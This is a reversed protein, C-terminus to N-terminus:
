ESDDYQEDALVNKGGTGDRIQKLHHTLLYPMIYLVVIEDPKMGHFGQASPGYLNTYAQIPWNSYLLRVMCHTGCTNVHQFKSQLKARNVTLNQSGVGQLLFTLWPKGNMMPKNARLFSSYQIEGDPVIGYPDFFEYRGSGHNLLLTWHGVSASQTPYFLVVARLNGGFLEGMSKYKDLNQYMVVETPVNMARAIARIDSDSLSYQEATSLVKEFTIM